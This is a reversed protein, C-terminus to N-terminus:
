DREQINFIPFEEIPKNRMFARYYDQVYLFIPEKYKLIEQVIWQSYKKNQDINLFWQGKSYTFDKEQIQKLGYVVLLNQREM